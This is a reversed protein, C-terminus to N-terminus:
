LSNIASMCLYNDENPSTIVICFPKQVVVTAMSGKVGFVS